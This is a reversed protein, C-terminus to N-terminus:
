IYENYPEAKGMTQRPLVSAMYWKIGELQTTKLSYNHQLFVPKSCSSNLAMMCMKRQKIGLPKLLRSTSCGPSKYSINEQVFLVIRKKKLPFTVEAM